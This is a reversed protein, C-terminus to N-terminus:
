LLIYGKFNRLLYMVHAKDILNIFKFEMACNGRGPVWHIFNIEQETLFSM